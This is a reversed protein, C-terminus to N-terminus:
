KGNEFNCIIKLIIKLFKTMDLFVDDSNCFM